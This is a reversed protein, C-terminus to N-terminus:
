GFMERCSSVVVMCWRDRQEIALSEQDRLRDFSTLVQYPKERQTSNFWMSRQKHPDGDIGKVLTDLGTQEGRKRAETDTAPWYTAKAM